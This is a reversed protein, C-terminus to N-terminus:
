EVLVQVHENSEDDQVDILLGSEVQDFIRDVEDFDVQKMEPSFVRAIGLGFKVMAMPVNVTVKNKGTESNTVQVRLWRPQRNKAALSASSFQEDLEFSTSRESKLDASNDADFLRGSEAKYVPEDAAVNATSEPRDLMEVAEDITIKGRALLDLIEARSDNTTM